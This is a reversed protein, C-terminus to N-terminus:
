DYNRISIKFKILIGFPSTTKDIVHIKSTQWLNTKRVMHLDGTGTDNPSAHYGALCAKSDADCHAVNCCEVTNCFMACQSNCAQLIQTNNM